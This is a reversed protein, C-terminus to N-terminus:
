SASAAYLREIFNAIEAAAEHTDLLTEDEIAHLQLVKQVTCARRALREVQIPDLDVIM